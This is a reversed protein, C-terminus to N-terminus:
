GINKVKVPKKLWLDVENEKILGSKSGIKTVAAAGNATALQVAKEIQWGKIMGAVLGSGFGDGAGTSDVMKVTIGAAEIRGKGPINASIGNNGHTVVVMTGSLLRFLSKDVREDNILLGTLQAAEERNVIMVDLGTAIELLKKKQSIELRGPNAAIKIRNEKGFGILRRLLDLNGELSTAYFWKAKLKKFDVLSKELRTGGRYVLITRGGDPGVLVTSYDTDEREM